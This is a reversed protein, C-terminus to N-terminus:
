KHPTAWWSGSSPACGAVIQLAYAPRVYYRCVGISIIGAPCDDEGDGGNGDENDEEVEEAVHGDLVVSVVGGALRYGGHLRLVVRRLGSVELGLGLPIPLHGFVGAAEVAIRARGLVAVNHHQRGAVSAAVVASDGIDERTHELVALLVACFVAVLVQPEVSAAVVNAFSV